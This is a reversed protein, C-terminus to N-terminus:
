DPQNNGTKTRQNVLPIRKAYIQSKEKLTDRSQTDLIHPVPWLAWPLMGWDFSKKLIVLSAIVLIVLLWIEVAM